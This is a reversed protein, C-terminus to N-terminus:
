HTLGKEYTNNINVSIQEGNNNLVTIKDSNLYSLVHEVYQSDGTQLFERYNLWSNNTQDNILEEETTGELESCMSLVQYMSGPGFNYSQLAIPINYDFYNLNAKFIAAGMIINSKLDRMTDENIPIQDYEKTNYNYISYGEEPHVGREIQMIGVAPGNDLNEYHLGGSEQTAIAM